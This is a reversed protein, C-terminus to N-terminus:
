ESATGITPPLQSSGTHLDGKGNVGGAVAWLSNSATSFRNEPLPPLFLFDDELVQDQLRNELVPFADVLCPPENRYDWSSHLSICSFQKFGLPPPPPQLASLNCWHVETQTVSHSGAGTIGASQSASTPPDSSTSHELGARGVHLFGMEVLFVFNAPCPPAHSYNWSSPLSLCSFQKFVPTPPQLSNLNHWQVGAQAVLAFSKIGTIGANQSASAPPDNSGLLELSAQFCLSVGDAQLGLVKPPRPPHIVLDLSRSWGPWCPSVGDRSFYLFNAPRTPMGTTGAVRSASAPSNSSVSFPLQLSGPDRWQVGAQFYLSVGNKPWAWHSVDTIEVIQSTLAPLGSSGLLQLGAQAIYYSELENCELRTVSYSGTELFLLLAQHPPEHRYDWCKPLGLNTSQKLDPTRSWGPWYPSIRDRSPPQPLLIMQVQSVSTEIIWSQVMATWGPCELSVKCIFKQQGHVLVNGTSSGWPDGARGKQSTCSNQRRSKTHLLRCQIEKQM